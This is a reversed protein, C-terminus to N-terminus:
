LERVLRVAVGVIRAAGTEFDSLPVLKPEYVPNEPQLLVMDRQRRFRKLTADELGKGAAFGSTLAAVMADGAGVTSRVEIKLPPAFFAEDADAIVAGDGGLSVAVVSAGGAILERAADRVQQVSELRCGTLAELEARNPKLMWPRAKLGERLPAGDADLVCRCTKGQAVRLLRAYYDAPCGPPLSGSLVLFDARAARHEVLETMRELDARGVQRGSENFETVM